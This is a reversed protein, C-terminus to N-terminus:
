KPSVTTETFTVNKGGRFDRLLLQPLTEGAMREFPLTCVTKEKKTRDRHELASSPRAFDIQRILTTGLIAYRQQQESYTLTFEFWATFM